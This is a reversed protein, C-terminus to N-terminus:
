EKEDSEAKYKDIINLVKNLSFVFCSGGLEPEGAYNMPYLSIFEARMRDLVDTCPEEKLVKFYHPKATLINSIIKCKTKADTDCNILEEIEEMDRSLEELVKIAKLAKIVKCKESCKESGLYCDNCM